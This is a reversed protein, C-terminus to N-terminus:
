LLVSGSSGSNIQVTFRWALRTHSLFVSRSPEQGESARPLSCDCVFGVTESKKVGRKVRKKVAYKNM